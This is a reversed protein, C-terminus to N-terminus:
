LKSDDVGSRHEAVLRLSFVRKVGQSFLHTASAGPTGSQRSERALEVQGERRGRRSRGVLRVLLPQGNQAFSDDVVDTSIPAQVLGEHNRLRPRLLMRM